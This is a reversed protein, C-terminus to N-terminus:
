ARPASSAIKALVRPSSHSPLKELTNTSASPSTRVGGSSEPHRAPTVRSSTRSHARSASTGTRSTAIGRAANRSARCAAM